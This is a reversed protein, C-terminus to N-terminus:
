YYNSPLGYQKEDSGKKPVGCNVPEWGVTSYCEIAVKFDAKGSFYLKPWDDYKVYGGEEEIMERHGPIWYPTPYLDIPITVSKGPKIRPILLPEKVALAAGMLPEDVKLPRDDTRAYVYAGDQMYTNVPVLVTRGVLEDNTVTTYLSLMYRQYDEEPVNAPEPARTLQVMLRAPEFESGEIPAGVVGPPLCLPERGNSHAEEDGVCAPNNGGARAAEKMTDIGEEIAKQCLSGESCDPGVQEALFSVLYAEGMETLADFSPLSPPLGVAVLGVNLGMRLAAKCTDGCFPLGAAVVDIVANKISEYASAVWDLAGEVFDWLSEYWAAEGEGRYVEPCITMGVPLMSWPDPAMADLEGTYRDNRTIKVCGWLTDNPFVIPKFGEIRVEFISPPLPVLPNEQEQAPGYRVVVTNSPAGVQQNGNMPVARAYYTRPLSVAAMGPNLFGGAGDVMLGLTDEGGAALGELLPRTAPQTRTPIAAPGGTASSDGNTEQTPNGFDVSLLGMTGTLARTAVLGPPSPDFNSGFPLTSLQWLAGTAEASDTSWLLDRGHDENPSWPVLTQDAWGLGERCEGPHICISLKTQNALWLGPKALQSIEVKRTFEGLLLLQGGSWGWAEVAISHGQQSPQTGLDGLYSALDFIQRSGGATEGALEGGSPSAGAEDPQSPDSLGEPPIFSNPDAPVRRWPEGDVSLYYYVKDLAEPAILKGKDVVLPFSPPHPGGWQTSGCAPDDINVGVLNSASEGAANFSSVYYQLQGSLKEDVFALSADGSAGLTALRHFGSSQPALRYVFFGDEDNSRDSVLLRVNCGEKVAALTPPQPRGAPPTIRKKIWLALESPPSEAVLHAQDAPASPASGGTSEPTPVVLPLPGFVTQGSALPASPAVEPNLTSLQELAVGSREAIATLTEGERVANLVRADVPRSAKLRVVNSDGVSGTVDVARAMLAHDGERLPQWSWFAFLSSGGADRAAEKREVMTGDAWLELAKLPRAAVAKAAVPIFSNSPYSSGNSPRSLTVVLPSSNAPLQESLSPIQAAFYVGAGATAVIAVFVSLGLILWSPRHRGGLTQM